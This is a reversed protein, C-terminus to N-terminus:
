STLQCAVAGFSLNKGVFFIKEDKLTDALILSPAKRELLLAYNMGGELSTSVSIRHKEAEFISGPQAIMQLM